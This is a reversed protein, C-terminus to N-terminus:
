RGPSDMFRYPPELSSPRELGKYEQRLMKLLCRGFSDGQLRTFELGDFHFYVVDWCDPAGITLWNLNQVDNVSAFPLLGGPEPYTPHPCPYDTETALRKYSQIISEEGCLAERLHKGFLSADRFNWIVAWGESSSLQGSGYLDIFEKYDRPLALGLEREVANWSQDLGRPSRPPPILKAIGKVSSRM